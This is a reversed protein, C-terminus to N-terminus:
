LYWNADSVRLQFPCPALIIQFSLFGDHRMGAWLVKPAKWTVWFLAQHGAQALCTGRSQGPCGGGDRGGREEYAPTGRCGVPGRVPRAQEWRM